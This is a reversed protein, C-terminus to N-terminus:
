LFRSFIDHLFRIFLIKYEHQTDESAFITSFQWKQVGFLLPLASDFEPRDLLHASFTVLLTNHGAEEKQSDNASGAGPGGFEILAETGGRAANLDLNRARFAALAIPAARRLQSVIALSPAILPFRADDAYSVGAFAVAGVFGSDPDLPRLGSRSICVDLGLQKFEPDIEALM